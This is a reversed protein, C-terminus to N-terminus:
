QKKSISSPCHRRGDFVFSTPSRLVFSPTHGEAASRIIIASWIMPTNTNNTTFLMPRQNTQANSPARAPKGTARPNAANAATKQTRRRTRHGSM